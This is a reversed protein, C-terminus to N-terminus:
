ASGSISKISGTQFSFLTVTDPVWLLSGRKILGNQFPFGLPKPETWEIKVKLRVLKSYFCLFTIGWGLLSPKIFNLCISRYNWLLCKEVLFDIIRTM